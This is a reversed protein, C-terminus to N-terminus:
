GLDFNVKVGGYISRIPTGFFLIEEYRRDFLNDVRTYVQVRRNVDYTAALNWVDFAQM